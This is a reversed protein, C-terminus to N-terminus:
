VQGVTVELVFQTMVNILPAVSAARCVEGVPIRIVTGAVQHSTAGDRIDKGRQTGRNADNELVEVVTVIHQLTAGGVNSAKLSVLVPTPGRVFKKLQSYATAAEPPVGVRTAMSLAPLTKVYPPGVVFPLPVFTGM